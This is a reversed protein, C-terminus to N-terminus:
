CNISSVESNTELCKSGRMPDLGEATGTTVAIACLTAGRNFISAEIRYIGKVVKRYKQVSIWM